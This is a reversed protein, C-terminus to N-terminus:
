GQGTSTDVGAPNSDNEQDDEEDGAGPAPQERQRREAISGIRQAAADALRGDEEEVSAAYEEANGDPVIGLGQLIRVADSRRIMGEKVLVLVIDVWAGQDLPLASGGDIQLVDMAESWPQKMDIAAAMSLARCVATYFAERVPDIMLTFASARNSLATGSANQGAETFLFQPKTARVAARQAEVTGLLAQLGALEVELWKADAGIPIALTKGPTSLDTGEAVRVGTTVLLPSAHRAGIVQLQTTISDIAAIIGGMGAGSWDPLVGDDVLSYAARVLPVVGLRSAGSEESVRQGDLYVDISDPRLVRRYTTQAPVSMVGSAPDIQAPPEHQFEILAAQLITGSPDRVPRVHEPSRWVIVAKGDGRAFAEIWGDGHTCMNRAWRLRENAELGSRAWIENAAALVRDAEPGEKGPKVQLSLTRSAISAADVDVCWRIDTSLRRTVAQVENDEDLHIFLNLDLIDQLRYGLQRYAEMRRQYEEARQEHTTPLPRGRIVAEAVAGRSVMLIQM